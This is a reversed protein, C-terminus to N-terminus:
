RQRRQEGGNEPKKPKPAKYVVTQGEELGQLIEVFDGDDLGTQVELPGDKGEVQVTSVGATRKVARMPVSLVGDRRDAHITVNATMEPRLRGVFDDTIELVVDYYVVNDQLIAAPHVAAVVAEFVTSPFADVTFTARMGNRVKGIDVEDVYADVQLRTLDVITVFTPASFGAAVTEGEQTTITGVVGDIPARVTAYTLRISTEQLEARLRPLEADLVAVDARHSAELVQLDAAALALTEEARRIADEQLAIDTESTTLTEALVEEQVRVDQTLRTQALRRQAKTRDLRSAATELDTSAKDLSQEALMGQGYLTEMRGLDKQAFARAATDERILKRAVKVEDAREALVAALRVEDARRAADGRALIAALRSREADLEVQRQLILALARAHDATYRTKAALIRAETETIRAEKQAVQAKLDEHEILALVQDKKVAEGIRATLADVRGSIRAGVNVQAGVEPKVTGTALVTLVFDRRQVEATEMPGRQGPGGMPEKALFHRYAAYGGGGLLALVFLWILFRKM